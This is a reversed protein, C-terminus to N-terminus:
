FDLKIGLQIQRQSYVFNSNANTVAGFGSEGSVGGTTAFPQYTLTSGSIAYATSNVGTVNVHNAVNFVEGLLELNYRDKVIPVDKQLRMDLDYTSPQKFTNRGIQV